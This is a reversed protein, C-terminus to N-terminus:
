TKRKSKFYGVAAGAALLLGVAGDIPVPGGPPDPQTYTFLPLSLLIILLYLSKKM